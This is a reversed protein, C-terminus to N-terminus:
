TERSTSTASWSNRRTTWRRRSRSAPCRSRRYVAETSRRIIRFRRHEVRGSLPDPLLRDLRKDLDRWLTDVDHTADAEWEKAYARMSGYRGIFGLYVIVLDSPVRGRWPELFWRQRDVSEAEIMPLDVPQPTSDTGGTTAADPAPMDGPPASGDASEDHDNRMPLASAYARDLVHTQALGRDDEIIVECGSRWQGGVTPVRIGGFVRCRAAGSWEAVAKFGHGYARRAAESTPENRSALEALADLHRGALDPDGESLQRFSTWFTAPDCDFHRASLLLAALLRWGPLGLDRGAEALAIFDDFPCHEAPGLHGAVDAATVIGALAKLSTRHDPLLHEEVCRFGPHERIGIPLRDMTFFRPPRNMSSFLSRAADEVARPLRWVDGPAVPTGDVALCRTTRLKAETGSGDSIRALADLIDSRFVHPEPRSLAM